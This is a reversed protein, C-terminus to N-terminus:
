FVTWHRLETLADPEMFIHIKKALPIVICNKLFGYMTSGSWKIHICKIKEEVVEGQQKECFV